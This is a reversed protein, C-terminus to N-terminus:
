TTRKPVRGIGIVSVGKWPLLRDVRRWMPVLADFVRLQFRSFSKKKLVRGNFWWGPRTASNFEFVREVEFGAAEM